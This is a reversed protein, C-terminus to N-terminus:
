IMIVASTGVQWEYVGTTTNLVVMLSNSYFGEVSVPLATDGSAYVDLMGTSFNWIVQQDTSGGEAATVLAQSVPVPIRAMCGKPYWMATMGGVVLPVNNGPMIIANYNNRYSSFGSYDSMSSAQIVGPGSQNQDMTPVIGKVPVGGWLPSTAASSFMGSKLRMKAIQDDLDLGQIYGDSEVIFGASMNSTLMPNFPPLSNAM